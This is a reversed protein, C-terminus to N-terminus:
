YKTTAVTVPFQGVPSQRTTCVTVPFQGVPSQRTTAVTVPFQGVPSQRTTAVTVPFLCAPYQRTTAVTVPFQDVPSQRTTAVTIPFQGAPSQRATGVTVPFQNPTQGETASTPKIALFKLVPVNTGTTIDSQIAPLLHTQGVVVTTPKTASILQLGTSEVVHSTRRQGGTTPLMNLVQQSSNQCMIPSTFLKQPCSAQSSLMVSAEKTTLQLQQQQPSLHVVTSGYQPESM